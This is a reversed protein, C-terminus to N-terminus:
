APRREQVGGGAAVREDYLPRRLHTGSEFRHEMDGVGHLGQQKRQDSARIGLLM